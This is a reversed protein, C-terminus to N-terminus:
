APVRLGKVSESLHEFLLVGSNRYALRFRPFRSLSIRLRETGNVRVYVYQFKVGSQQAWRELCNTSSNGCKQLDLYRKWPSPGKTRGLWETGQYAALSTRGSLVPFWESESGASTGSPGVIM